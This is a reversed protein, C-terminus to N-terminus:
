EDFYLNLLTTIGGAESITIRDDVDPRDAYHSMLTETADCFCDLLSEWSWGTSHLNITEYLTRITLFRNREDLVCSIIRNAPISFFGAQADSVGKGKDMVSTSRSATSIQLYKM